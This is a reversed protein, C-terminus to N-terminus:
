NQGLCRLTTWLRESNDADAIGRQKRARTDQYLTECFSPPAGMSDLVAQIVQLFEEAAPRRDSRQRHPRLGRLRSTAPPRRSVRNVMGDDTKVRSVPVYLRPESFSPMCSEDRPDTAWRTCDPCLQVAGDLLIRHAVHEEWTMGSAGPHDRDLMEDISPTDSVKDSIPAPSQDIANQEADAHIEGWFNERSGLAERRGSSHGARNSNTLM